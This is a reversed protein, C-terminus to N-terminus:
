IRGLDTLTDLIEQVTSAKARLFRQAVQKATLTRGEAVLIKEVQRVQEALTKPWPKRKKTKKIEAKTEPETLELVGQVKSAGKPKQYDPRLWRITGSAICASNVSVSKLRM